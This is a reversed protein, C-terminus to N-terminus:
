HFDGDLLSIALLDRASDTTDNDGVNFTEERFVLSLLLDDLLELFDALEKARKLGRAIGENGVVNRLEDLPNQGIPIGLGEAVFDTKASFWGMEL